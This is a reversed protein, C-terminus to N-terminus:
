EGILWKLYVQAKQLDEKGNKKAARIVYKAVNGICFADFGKYENTIAKVIDIVPVDIGDLEYHKPTVTTDMEHKKCVDFLLAIGGKTIYETDDIVKGFRERVDSIVDDTVQFAQLADTLVYLTEKWNTREHITVGNVRM